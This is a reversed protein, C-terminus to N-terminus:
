PRTALAIPFTTDSRHLAALDPAIWSLVEITEDRVVELAVRQNNTGAIVIGNFVPEHHAARNRLQQFNSARTHVVDRTPRRVRGKRTRTGLDFGYRLSPRWLQTEYDVSRGLGSVGGRSLLMVWTGLM